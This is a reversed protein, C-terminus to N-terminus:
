ADKWLGLDLGVNFSTTTEWRLNPNGLSVPIYGPAPADGSLYSRDDV